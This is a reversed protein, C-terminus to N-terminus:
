LKGYEEKFIHLREMSDRSIFFHYSIGKRKNDFDNSWLVYWEGKDFKIPLTEYKKNQLNMKWYYDSSRKNFWVKDVVDSKLTILDIRLTDEIYYQPYGNANFKQVKIKQITFGTTFDNENSVYDETVFCDDGKCSTIFIAIINLLLFFRM